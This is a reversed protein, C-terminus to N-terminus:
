YGRQRLTKVCEGQNTFGSNDGFFKCLGVADANGNNAYTEFASVCSGHSGFAAEVEGTCLEAVGPAAAAPAALALLLAASGVLAYVRMRSAAGGVSAHIRRRASALPSHLRHTPEADTAFSGDGIRTRVGTREMQDIQPQM